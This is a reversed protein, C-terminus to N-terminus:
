KTSIKPTFEAEFTEKWALEIAEKALQSFKTNVAIADHLALGVVGQNLLMTLARLMVDGDVAQLVKGIGTFCHEHFDPYLKEISRLVKRKDGKVAGKPQSTKMSESGIFRVIFEKVVDRHVRSDAAIADYFDYSLEPKGLLMFIMTPHNASVDVEVIPKDNILCKQRIQLRRAPIRQFPMYIRGGNMYDGTYILRAPAKLPYKTDKYAANLRRMAQIQWHDEPLLNTIDVVKSLELPEDDEIGSYLRNLQDSDLDNGYTTNNSTNSSNQSYENIGKIILENPRNVLIMSDWNSDVESYLCEELVPQLSATPSYANAMESVKSGKHRLEILNKDLLLNKVCTVAAHGLNLKKYHESKTYIENKSPITLMKGSYHAASLSFILSKLARVRKDTTEQVRDTIAPILQDLLKSLAPAAWVLQANSVLMLPMTKENSKRPKTM